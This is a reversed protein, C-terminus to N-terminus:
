STAAQGAASLIDAYKTRVAELRPPIHEPPFLGEYPEVSKLVAKAVQAKHVETPGDALGMTLVDQWMRALPSENSTGYSGHIQIARRVIDHLVQAMQSKCMAIYMRAAGAPQTDIIWATKLVLLRLMELEIVSNAVMDQVFQHESLTKGQARRSRARVLMMELARQCAGVTRMAHHVRGGGLRAQAVEFGMGPGGLMASKPVRVQHYRIFAHCGEDRSLDDGITGTNRVIEIGPTECPVVFMSMRRYTAATPDTVALVLLFSAYRANSSFWKAGEIVWADDDEWARCTFEKPDAGAQPETMSFCSVIDGELLPELYLNKQEATGFMALIEANGTDPAATGFVSPAWHSRGLIENMLALKLQGFGHGGLHSDLHCAWLGRRKVEQQLPKIIANRVPSSTDYPDGHKPLLLDLPECERKVFELMWDLKSQFDPEISFDIM